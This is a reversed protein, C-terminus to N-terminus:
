ELRIEHIGHDDLAVLLGSRKCCKEHSKQYKQCYKRWAAGVCQTMLIRRRSCSMRQSNWEDVNERSSTLWIGQEDEVLTKIQKGIGRDIAALTHTSEEKEGMHVLMKCHREVFTIFEEQCQSKFNDQVMM